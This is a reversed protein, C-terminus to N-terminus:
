VGCIWGCRCAQLAAVREAAFQRRGAARECWGHIMLGSATTAYGYPIITRDTVQGSADTYRIAIRTATSIWIPLETWPAPLRRPCRTTSSWPTALPATRQRALTFYQRVGDADPLARHAPGKRRLGHHQLVTELRNDPTDALAKAMRRTDAVLRKPLTIGAHDLEWTLIACDYPANHAVLHARPPLRALFRELVEGASPKSRVTRDRIRHVAAADAPIPMGPHVLESFTSIVTGDDDFAVAGLDLLRSGPELGTTETDFAVWTM